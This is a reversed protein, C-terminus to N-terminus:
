VFDQTGPRLSHWSTLAQFREAIRLLLSDSHPPGVLQLGAPLGASSLGCPVFVGPLGALNGAGLLAANGTTRMVSVGPRDLPVADADVALTYSALVDVSGFVDRLKAQIRARVRQADLYDRASTGLLRRLGERQEETTVLALRDSEILPGLISAADGDMIQMLTEWYPLDQPIEAEVLQAGTHSLAELGERLPRRISEDATEDIDRRAFGVRISGVDFGGDGLRKFRRNSTGPDRRDRRGIAELVLGCDTATHALVGIRDLSWSVPMAGFRSVLGYTPRIGTVGCLAAPAAVSGGTDSGLAFPLLGAAVAAGSGSSSGGAFLDLRWPNRGPGQLSAGLDTTGTGTLENLALKALLPAGARRLYEVPAADFDLMQDRFAGSGYTTPAGRAAMIDKAGYPIGLLASSVGRRILRDARRAEQRARDVTLTAIANLTRGTSGLRELLVSVLEVSSLEHRDLLGRLEGITAFGVEHSGPTV